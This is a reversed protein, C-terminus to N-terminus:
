LCLFNKSKLPKKSLKELTISFSDLYFAIFKTKNQRKQKIGTEKIFIKPQINQVYIFCHM